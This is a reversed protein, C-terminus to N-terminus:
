PIMDLLNDYRLRKEVVQSSVLFRRGIRECVLDCVHELYEDRPLGASQAAQIAHKLRPSSVEQHLREHLAGPPVLVLGAFWYAQRELWERDGEDIGHVFERYDDLDSVQLRRFIDRHLVAHGVEHALTFRYRHEVPHHYVAEDVYIQTLDSATFGDIELEDFLGPVPVIAIGMDLDVIEEIQLPPGTREPRARLFDGARTRLDDYTLYDLNLRIRM